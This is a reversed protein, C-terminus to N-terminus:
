GKEALSTQEIHWSGYLGSAARPSGSDNVICKQGRSVQWVAHCLCHREVWGILFCGMQASLFSDRMHEIGESKSLRGEAEAEAEVEVGVRRDRRKFRFDAGM